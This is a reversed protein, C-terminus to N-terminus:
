ERTNKLYDIARNLLVPSDKLYGIGSNCFSCLLGRIKGTIHCHDVFLRKGNQNPQGCIACVGNQKLYLADYGASGLIGGYRKARILKVKDPNKLEWNRTNAIWAEKNKTRWKLSYASVKERNAQRWKRAYENRNQLQAM